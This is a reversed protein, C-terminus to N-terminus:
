MEWWTQDQTSWWMLAQKEAQHFGHSYDETHFDRQGM